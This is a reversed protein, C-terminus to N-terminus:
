FLIFYVRDHFVKPLLPTEAHFSPRFFTANPENKNGHSHALMMRLALHWDSVHGHIDFGAYTFHTRDQGM